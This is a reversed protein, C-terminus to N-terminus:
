AVQATAAASGANAAEHVTDARSDRAAVPADQSGWWVGQAPLRWTVRTGEGPRGAITVDGGLARAAARVAGLGVGRGSWETVADATSVGDGFLAEVLQAQTQAPLGAARAKAAVREWVIGAGDDAVSLEVAGAPTARLALELTAHAPKGAALRAAAPEIGHDVANRIVHVATAFIPAFRAPELRAEGGVTVVRLEARGLRRAVAAAHEALRDFHSRAPDWLLARLEPLLPSSPDHASARALLQEVAPRSLEFRQDSRDGALEHIRARAATWAAVVPEIEAAQAACERGELTDELAHCAAAVATLGFLGANGKLTHLDRRQADVDAGHLAAVLADSEGAFQQVARRDARVKAFLALLERQERAAREAQLADTVDTLVVLADDWVGGADRERPRQVEIALTRGDALQVRKPLQDVAVEWPLDGEVLASWGLELWAGAAADHKAVLGALTPAEPGGALELWRDAAASREGVVRGERDVHVLGQEVTELVRRAGALAAEARARAHQLERGMQNKAAEFAATLTWVFLTSAAVSVCWYVTMAGDSLLRSYAGGRAATVGFQLSCAIAIATWAAAGRVGLLLMALAPVTLMWMLAPSDMGGTGMALAALVGVLAVLLAHATIAPRGTLPLMALGVVAILTAAVLAHGLPPAQLAYMLAAFVPGWAALLVTSLVTLRGHRASEEGAQLIRPPLLRDIWAWPSAIAHLLPALARRARPAATMAAVM